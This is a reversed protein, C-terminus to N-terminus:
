KTLYVGELEDRYLRVNKRCCLYTNVSFLPIERLGTIRLMEDTENDFWMSALQLKENNNSVVSHSVWGVACDYEGSVLGREYGSPDRGDLAASIGKASCDAMLKEAISKSVQDDKRFLIKVAGFGKTNQPPLVPMNELVITDSGVAKIVEGEVKLYNKLLLEANVISRVMKRLQQDPIRCSIFYRDSGVKYLDAKMSLTSRVYNIDNLANLLLADYKNLSFSLVPNPDGGTKLIIKDLFAKRTGFTETNPLLVTEGSVMGEYYNGLLLKPVMILPTKLREVAHQQPTDYRLQVTRQDPANFGRILAERGNIFDILGQVGRFMAQGQAPNEKVFSTWQQILDLASIARKRGNVIRDKLRITVKVPSTDALSFYSTDSFVTDGKLLVLPLITQDFAARPSYLRLVGGLPPVITDWPSFPFQMVSDTAPLLENDALEIGGDINDEFFFGRQVSTISDGQPMAEDHLIKIRILSYTSDAAMASFPYTNMFEKFSHLFRSKESQNYFEISYTTTDGKKIIPSVAKGAEGKSVPPPTCVSVVLATGLLFFLATRRM